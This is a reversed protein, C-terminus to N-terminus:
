QQTGFTIEVSTGESLRSPIKEGTTSAQSYSHAPIFEELRNKMQAKANVCM